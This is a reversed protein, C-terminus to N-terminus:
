RNLHDLAIRAAANEAVKIRSGYGVGYSAGQIFVEVRFSKQHDPGSEDMLKYEPVCHFEKQAKEQLRSKYDAFVDFQLLRESPQIIRARVFLDVEDWTCSLYLAGILAELASGLLSSRRRGGTLEEGKGLLILNGLGLAKAQRGLISRSVLRAKRKSLYGEDAEPNNEYLYRSVIFGLVADGLFELRENDVALGHEFSYSRHTLSLSVLELDADNMGLSQLFDALRDHPQDIM